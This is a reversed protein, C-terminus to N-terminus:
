APRIGTALIYNLRGSTFAALYWRGVEVWGRFVNEGDLRKIEQEHQLLARDIRESTAIAIKTMDIAAAQVFGADELLTTYEEPGFLSAMGDVEWAFSRTEDNIRGGAGLTAIALRGGPKLCAYANRLVAGVDPLLMMSDMSIVLDVQGSPLWAQCDSELIEVKAAAAPDLKATLQQAVRVQNPNWEIGTILCGYRQALYRCVAGQGACFEIATADANLNALAAIRDLVEAGGLNIFEWGRHVAGYIALQWVPGSTNDYIERNKLEIESPHAKVSM